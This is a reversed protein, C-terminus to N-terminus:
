NLDGSDIKLGRATIENGNEESSGSLGYNTGFIILSASPRARIFRDALRNLQRGAVIQPDLLIGILIHNM